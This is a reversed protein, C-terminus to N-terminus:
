NLKVVEIRPDIDRMLEDFEKEPLRSEVTVITGPICNLIHTSGDKNQKIRSTDNCPVVLRWETEKGYKPDKTYFSMYTLKIAEEMMSVLDDKLSSFEEKTLRFMMKYYSERLDDAKALYESYVIRNM